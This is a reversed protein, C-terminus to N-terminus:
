QSSSSDSSNMRDPASSRTGTNRCSGSPVHTASWGPWWHSGSPAQTRDSLVAWSGDADRGVDFAAHFLQHSGPLRIGDCARVFQPDSLIMGPPVVGTRLLRREGYMDRLVLDLLEARQIMGREIITWEDNPVIFPVPDLTWARGHRHQEAPNNYTVGDQELLMQIEDRRRALETTGLARYATAVGAWHDRIAGDADMMEDHGDAHPRYGAIPDVIPLVTV